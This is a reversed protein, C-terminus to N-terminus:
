LVQPFVVNKTYCNEEVYGQTFTNTVHVKVADFSRARSFAVYLQGHSFCPRRLYIGVKNFTQGQSKNITLAYSLRLPFQIRKLQFPLNTDNPCLSVRPILVRNGRAVGTLIECDISNDRLHVVSLRTGNCLGDKLSLNRLLMVICGVKLKLKHRPIGTPTVSNIFEMPYVDGEVPEDTVVSDVSFYTRSDGPLQEILRDNIEFAEDNTPTLIVRNPFDEVEQLPFVYNVIDSDKPVTCVPPIHVSNKFPDDEKVPYQGSGLQLLFESFEGEGEQARMNVHLHFVQVLPWLTSSKLCIEVIDAPKGRKVVPLTQRFDGGLLVVKGAFPVNSQCIDKFMNDIAQLAYKPIMSAEDFIIIHQERLFQAHRSNPKVNCTSNDLVPVPLKFLSHVTKGNHLLTAAIGTWACTSVNLNQGIVAKIIYNYTFTKGTGGPGDLFFINARTDDNVACAQLIADAVQIQDHNLMARLNEAEDRFAVVNPMDLVPAEELPPLQYDALTKGSQTLIAQIRGLALQEAQFDPQHRLFDEMMHLRFDQWMAAPNNPEGHTLIFAFTIRIRSPAAIACLEHMTNVWMTDDALLGRALCSDRFTAHVIGGYTKLDDFSTAGAVHLLLVRLFYREGEQVNANYMRSFIKEAGRQRM